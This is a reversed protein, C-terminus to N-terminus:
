ICWAALLDSWQDTDRWNLFEQVDLTRENFGRDSLIMPVGEIGPGGADEGAECGLGPFIYSKRVRAPLMIRALAKLLHAKNLFPSHIRAPDRVEASCRM